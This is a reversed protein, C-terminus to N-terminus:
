HRTGLMVSAPAGPVSIRQIEQFGANELWRTYEPESYSAGAETNVLMNLSFLAGFRPATKDPNLIFDQVAVRGGPVLAAHCRRLLDANEGPSLMHCIASVLVLDYGSGLDDRRLDGIRTTVRGALGAERIHREAIGVVVDRDLVEARLEPNARAFAISYAASGGGVDLMRRVGETGIAAVVPPAGTSANRHMAAIFADTWPDKEPPAPRGTRVSETLHSWARWLRVQHMMAMRAHDPSASTFYRAAVHTNRFAGDQRALMGMAVLANLLMETARLDAALRAAIEPATGGEGVADFLDLEIATLMARSERFAGILAVLEDPLAGAADKARMAALFRDRNTEIERRVDPEDTNRLRVVPQGNRFHSEVIEAADEARVGSYWVGEPYVVMNPGRECLGLSGCATVLVEGALGRMAIERRLAEAVNRGGRAGCCPLGEPKQQECVFVHLRFPQM